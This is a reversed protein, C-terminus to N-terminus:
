TIAKNASKEWPFSKDGEPLAKGNFLVKKDQLRQYKKGNWTISNADYNLKGTKMDHLHKKEHSVVKKKKAPSLGPALEITGDKHAKGLVGDPLASNEQVKDLPTNEGRARRGRRLKTLDVDVSYPSWGLGLLVNQWADNYELSIANINELKKFLRDAPINALASVYNAAAYGQYFPSYKYQKWTEYRQAEVIDGIKKSIPPSISLGQQVLKMSADHVRGGEEKTKKQRYFEMGLNKLAAIVAGQYGMGRLTGDLIGNAAYMLKKEEEEEVGDDLLMSFLASQLTSFLLNQAVGYYVLKSANTKWDGRRNVLDLAAKKTLRAYQLPTNAFALILRGIDSAQQRSIRDPRSSQQTEEAIEQFEQMTQEIAQQETMGQKILRDINNRYWSAGGFSIAFSDGWQTPLFGVELLKKHTKTFWNGPETNALDATNIEIKMGGRRELLFDSNFLTNFDKAFQPVNAMAKAMMFPNNFSWNMFNIASLQQLIASRTNFSMINAVSANLWNMAQNFEKDKGKKRNVGTEMRELINKLADTFDNGHLQFILKMNEPSFIQDKNSKWEQLFMDRHGKNSVNALDTQISGGLWDVMIAPYGEPVKTIKALDEAFARLESNGEVTAVLESADAKNIDLDYGAKDYLYARVAQENTYVGDIIKEKLLKKNNYRKSLAKYDKALNVKASEYASIGEAFPKLLNDEFFKLTQEGVKGKDLFTYLLGVFDDAGAPVYINYKKFFSGRSSGKRRLINDMADDLAPAETEKAVQTKKKVGLRELMDNVAAVNAKADDAFFMDNYGESVKEAMWFAKASPTGDGLGTINELPISIGLASRLFSQIPQASNAPRATLVFVDREGKAEVLKKALQALPGKQGDVVKSFESFDFEAGAEQLQESQAAFETATLKGETGDPLTYLVNSKSTALTDDFDFVRAKKKPAKTNMAVVRAKRLVDLKANIEDTSLGLTEIGLDNLLQESNNRVTEQLKVVGAENYISLRVQAPTDGGEGTAVKAFELWEAESMYKSVSQYGADIAKALSKGGKYAVKVARLGGILVNLSVDKAALLLFPDVALGKTGTLETLKGIARDIVFEVKDTKEILADNSAKVADPTSQSQVQQEQAMTKGTEMNVITNLDIGAKALRVSSDDLISFGEPLKAGLDAADLREDDRKSLQTQYYNKRIYPMIAEVKNNTIAWLLSAGVVSAPPNHEERYPADKFGQQLFKKIGFEFKKSKYKFGAAIKILGSSGQYSQSVFLAAMQPSMTGDAVATGLITAMTELADMNNKYKVKADSSFFNSTVRGPKKLNPYNKDNKKAEERAKIYAPDTQNYYLSGKDKKPLFYGPYKKYLESKKGQSSPYPLFMKGDIPKSLIFYKNKSTTDLVFKGNVIRGPRYEAGFNAFKAAEFIISPIKAGKIVELMENQKEVLNSLNITVKGTISLQKAAANIDKAKALNKLVDTFESLIGPAGLNSAVDQKLQNLDTIKTRLEENTNLAKIAQASAISVAVADKFRNQRNSRAQTALSPDTFYDIFDQQNINEFAVKELVGNKEVLMGAEEFPNTKNKGRAMRMGEVSLVDYFARTNSKLKETFAKNTKTDKGMFEYARDKFKTIFGGSIDRKFSKTDPNYNKLLERVVDGEDFELGLAKASDIKENADEVVMESSMQSSIASSADDINDSFVQSFMQNNFRFARLYGRNSLFKDLSQKEPDFETQILTVINNTTDTKFQERNYNGRQSNPVPDYLKKALSEVIGGVAKQFEKVAPTSPTEGKKLEYKNYIDQLKTFEKPKGILKSRQRKYNTKADTYLKNYQDQTIRGEKLQLLLEKSKEVFKLSIGKIGGDDKNITVGAAQTVSFALQAQRNKIKLDLMAIRKPDTTDKKIAELKEIQNQLMAVRKVVYGDKSIGRKAMIELQRQEFGIADYNTENASELISEKQAVLDNYKEQISALRIEAVKESKTGTVANSGEIRLAGLKGDIDVLQRQQKDTLNDINNLDKALFQVQKAKIDTIAEGIEKIQQADAPNGPNLKSAEAELQKILDQGKAIEMETDKSRFPDVAKKFLTPMQFAGFSMAAGSLFSDKVGDMLGVNTKNLMEIDVLNSSVQAVTESLGEEVVNRAVAKLTTGTVYQKVADTISSSAGMAAKLNRMQSFTVYESLAETAGVIAPAAFLQGKSYELNPDIDMERMMDHYKGGASLTGMTGLSALSGYGGTAAMTALIPIQNGMLDIFWAGVDEISGIDDVSIDRRLDARTDKGIDYFFNSVAMGDIDTGLLDKDFEIDKDTIYGIGGELASIVYSPLATVGGLIYESSSAVMKGLFNEVNGYSRKTLDFIEEADQEKSVADKFENDIKKFEENYIAYTKSVGDKLEELKKVDDESRLTVNSLNSLKNNLQLAENAIFNANAKLNKIDSQVILKDGEVRKRVEARAKKDDALNGTLVTNANDSIQKENTKVVNKQKVSDIYKTEALAYIENKSIVTNAPKSAKLENEADVLFKRKNLDKDQTSISSGIFNPNGAVTFTPNEYYEKFENKRDEIQEDSLIGYQNQVPAIADVIEVEGDEGRFAEPQSPDVPAISEEVLIGKKRQYDLYKNLDEETNINLNPDEFLEARTFMQFGEAELNGEITGKARKFRYSKNQTRLNEDIKLQVEKQDKPLDLSGAVQTLDMDQGEAIAPNTEPALKGLFSAKYRDVEAQIEANTKGEAQLNAVLNDLIQKQEETLM